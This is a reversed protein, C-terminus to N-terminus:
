SSSMPALSALDWRPTAVIALGKPRDAAAMASLRLAGALAVMAGNDTCFALRPFFVEFKSRQSALQLRGRLRLNAGVGGAVVLRQRGIQKLAREAKVALTETIAEQFAAALDAKISEPLQKPDDLQLATAAKKAALLVQTKLGSFSFNLDPRDLMPRSFKFRGEQGQDALTALAPGGPYGLGLLQATKDFAEGAADDLSEGLLQYRGLAQVDILMSHGGSVLLAVFPLQPRNSELLPALVHAELHHVGISPLELAFALSHAFASGTLLAGILGPGSTYAVSQIESLEVKADNLCQNLLPILRKLHDRSALEPVVGGFEEHMRVQSFLAHALLGRKRCYLALGTEDCSSEVGLVVFEPEEPAFGQNEQMLKEGTTQCQNPNRWKTVAISAQKSM